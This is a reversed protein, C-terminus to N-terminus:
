QLTLLRLIRRCFEGPLKVTESLLATLEEFAVVQENSLLRELLDVFM